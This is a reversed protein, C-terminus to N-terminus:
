YYAKGEEGIGHLEDCFVDARQVFNGEGLHQGGLLVVPAVLGM